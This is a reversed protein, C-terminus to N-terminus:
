LIKTQSSGFYDKVDVEVKFSPDGETYALSVYEPAEQGELSLVQYLIPGCENQVSFAWSVTDSLAAISQTYKTSTGAEVTM